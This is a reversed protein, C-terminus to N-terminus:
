SFKNNIRRWAQFAAIWLFELIAICLMTGFIIFRSYYSLQLLYIALASIGATYFLAKAYLNLMKFFGRSKLNEYKNFIFSIILFLIVFVIFPSQYKDLVVEPTGHYLESIILFSAIVILLDAIMHLLFQKMVIPQQTNIYNGSAKGPL